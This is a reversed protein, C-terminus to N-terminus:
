LLIQQSNYDDEFSKLIPCLNDGNQKKYSYHKKWAARANDDEANMRCVEYKYWMFGAVYIGIGVFEMLILLPTPM